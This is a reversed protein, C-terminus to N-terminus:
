QARALTVVIVTIIPLAIFKREKERKSEQV